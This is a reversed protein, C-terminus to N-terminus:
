RNYTLFFYSPDRFRFECIAIYLREGCDDKDVRNSAECSPYNTIEEVFYATEFNINDNGSVYTILNSFEIPSKAGDFKLTRM